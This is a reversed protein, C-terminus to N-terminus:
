KRVQAGTIAGTIKQGTDRLEQAEVSEACPPAGTIQGIKQMPPKSEFDELLAAKYDDDPIRRYHRRAVAESHGIWLSEKISGYTEEVESSRSARCNTFFKDIPEIGARIQIKEFRTRLNSSANRKRFVRDDKGDADDEFYLAELERRM